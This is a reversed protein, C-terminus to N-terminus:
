QPYQHQRVAEILRDGEDGTLRLMVWGFGPDLIGIDIGNGDPHPQVFWRGPNAVHLPQGKTPDQQPIPPTIQARAAGLAAIFADVATGPLRIESITKAPPPLLIVVAQRDDSPAIAIPFDPSPNQARAVCAALIIATTFLWKFKTM